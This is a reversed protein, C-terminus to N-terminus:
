DGKIFSLVHQKTAEAEEDLTKLKNDLNMLSLELHEMQKQECPIRTTVQKDVLRWYYVPNQLAQRLMRTSSPLDRPLPANWQPLPPMAYEALYDELPIEVSTLFTQDM